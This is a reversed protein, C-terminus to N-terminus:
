QGRRGECASDFRAVWNTAETAHGPSRGAAWSPRLARRSVPERASRTPSARSNVAAQRGSYGGSGHSGLWLLLRRNGVRVIADGDLLPVLDDV